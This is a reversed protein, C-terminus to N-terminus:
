IIPFNKFLKSREYFKFTKIVQFRRAIAREHLPTVACNDAMEVPTTPYSLEIAAPSPVGRRSRKASPRPRSERRKNPASIKSKKRRPM